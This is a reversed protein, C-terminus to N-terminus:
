SHAAAFIIIGALPAGMRARRNFTRSSTVSRHIFRAPFNAPLHLRDPASEKDIARINITEARAVPFFIIRKDNPRGGETEGRRRRSLLSPFLKIWRRSSHQTFIFDCPM